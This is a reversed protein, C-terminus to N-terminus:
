RCEMRTGSISMWFVVNFGDAGAYELFQSGTEFTVVEAPIHANEAYRRVAQALTARVSADDDVIAIRM